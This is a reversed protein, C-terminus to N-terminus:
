THTSSILTSQKEELQITSTEIILYSLDGVAIYIYKEESIYIGRIAEDSYEQLIVEVNDIESCYIVRGTASGFSLSLPTVDLATVPDGLRIDFFGFLTM